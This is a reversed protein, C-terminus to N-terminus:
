TIYKQNGLSLCSKKESQLCVEWLDCISFCETLLRYFEVELTRM